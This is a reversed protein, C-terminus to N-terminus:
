QGHQALDRDNLKWDQWLELLALLAVLGGLAFHWYRLVGADAYGYTFPSAILWLGLAFAGAEEWRQLGVFELAALALVLAGVLVANWMVIQNDQQGALWPSLGILVGLGIGFWDEWNRHVNFFRIGAM